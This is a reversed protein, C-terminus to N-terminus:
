PQPVLLSLFEDFSQSIRRPIRDEDVYVVAPEGAPGCDSYDLMVTDHGGSPTLCIVVGCEPYGWESVLYASGGLESSPDIGWKGGIGLLATIEFHDPVWSTGFSTRCYRNRLAGGNRRLLLDVYTRPLRVGLSEEARHVAHDDQPPGTYYPDEDFIEALAVETLM